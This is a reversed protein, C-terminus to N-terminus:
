INFTIVNENVIVFCKKPMILIFGPVLIVHSKFSAEYVTFNFAPLGNEFVDTFKLFSRDYLTATQYEDNQVYYRLAILM